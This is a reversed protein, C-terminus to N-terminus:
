MPEQLRQRTFRLPSSKATFSILSRDLYMLFVNFKREHVGTPIQLGDPIVKDGTARSYWSKEFAILLSILMPVIRIM